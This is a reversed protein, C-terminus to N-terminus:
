FVGISIDLSVGQPTIESNREEIRKSAMHLESIESLEIASNSQRGCDVRRVDDAM